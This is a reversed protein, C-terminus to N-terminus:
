GAPEAAMRADDHEVEAEREPFAKSLGAYLVFAVVLGVVWSYDYLPQFLPILGDVPFPGSGGETTYAGGVAMVGGVLVAVVARWNWGSTYRYIGNSRYLDALKLQTRRIVWYDAILVGAIAGLAGGYFGLWTFIYVAPDSILYWPQIVVGIIATLIGGTRFSIRKPWANSFDYSPSVLNAAVNTTLTALVVAL